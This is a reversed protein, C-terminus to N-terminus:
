VEKVIKASQPLSKYFTLCGEIFSECDPIQLHTPQPLGMVQYLIIPNLWCLDQGNKGLYERIARELEQVRAALGMAYQTQPTVDIQIKDLAPYGQMRWKMFLDLNKEMTPRFEAMVKNQEELTICFGCAPCKLDGAQMVGDTFQARMTRSDFLVHCWPCNGDNMARVIQQLVRAINSTDVDVNHKEGNSM